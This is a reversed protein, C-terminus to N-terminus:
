NKLELAKKQREILKRAEEEEQRETMGSTNRKKKPKGVNYEIEDHQQFIPEEEIPQLVPEEEIPQFNQVINRYKDLLWKSPQKKMKHLEIKNEKILRRIYGAEKIGMGSKLMRVKHMYLKAEKSGKVLKM